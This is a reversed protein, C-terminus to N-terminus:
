VKERDITLSSHTCSVRKDWTYIFMESISAVFDNNERPTSSNDPEWIMEYSVTLLFRGYFDLLHMSHM